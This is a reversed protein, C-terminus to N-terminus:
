PFARLYLSLYLDRLSLPQCRSITANWKCAPVYGSEIGLAVTDILASSCSQQPLKECDGAEFSVVNSCWGDGNTTQLWQCMSRETCNSEVLNACSEECTGNVITCQPELCSEVPTTSCESYNLSLWEQCEFSDTQHCGFPCLDSDCDDSLKPYCYMNPAEFTAFHEFAPYSFISRSSCSGTRIAAECSELYDVTM